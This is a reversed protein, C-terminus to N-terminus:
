SSNRGFGFYQWSKYKLAPRKEQAEKFGAPARM